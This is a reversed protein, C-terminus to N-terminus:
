NCSGPIEVDDAHKRKFVPHRVVDAICPVMNKILYCRYIPSLDKHGATDDHLGPGDFVLSFADMEMHKDVIHLGADDDIIGVTRIM